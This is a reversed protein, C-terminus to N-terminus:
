LACLIQFPKVNSKDDIKMSKLIIKLPTPSGHQRGFRILFQVAIQYRNKMTNLDIQPRNPFIKGARPSPLVSLFHMFLLHLLVVTDRSPLGHRMPKQLIRHGEPWRVNIAYNKCRNPAFKARSLKGLVMGFDVLFKYSFRNWSTMWICM